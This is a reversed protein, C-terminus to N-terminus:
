PPMTRTAKWITGNFAYWGGDAVVYLEWGEKPTAFVWGSVGMATVGTYITPCNEKGAWNGTAGSAAVLHREGLTPSGPPATLTREAVNGQVLLELLAWNSDVGAKWGDEGVDWNFNIGLNTLAQQPM